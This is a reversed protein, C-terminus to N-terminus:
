PSGLLALQRCFRDIAMGVEVEITEVVITVLHDLAGLISTKDGDDVDGDILLGAHLHDVQRSLVGTETMGHDPNVRSVGTHGSFIQLRCESGHFLQAILMRLLHDADALDSEVIVPFLDARCILLAGEDCLQLDGTPAVQRHHNM